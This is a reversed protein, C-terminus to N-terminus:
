ENLKINDVVKKVFTFVTKLNNNKIFYDQHKVMRNNILWDLEDILHKKVDQSKVSKDLVYILTILDHVVRKQMCTKREDKSIGEIKSVYSNVKDNGRHNADFTKNLQNLICNNHAAANRLSKISKMPYTFLIGDKADPFESYFLDYLSIFDGFSIIEIINWLAYKESELKDILDGCYSTNKKELIKNEIDPYANFYTEIIEYGDSNSRNFDKMFGVKISHELDVTTKLIYHRLHMDLIALEQLYSFDLNVYEGKHEGIQYKEFLKNYSKLKFYYNNEKLYILAKDETVNDFTIGNSKMHELQENVTLKPRCM